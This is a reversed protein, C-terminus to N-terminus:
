TDTAVTHHSVRRIGIMDVAATPVQDFPSVFSTSEAHYTPTSCNLRVIKVLGNATGIYRESSWLLTRTLWGAVWM